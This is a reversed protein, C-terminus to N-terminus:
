SIDYSVDPGPDNSATVSHRPSLTDGDRHRQTVAASQSSCFM